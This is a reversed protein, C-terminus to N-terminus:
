CHRGCSKGAIRVILTLDHGSGKEAIQVYLVGGVWVWGQIALTLPEAVIALGHSFQPIANDSAARHNLNGVQILSVLPSRLDRVHAM